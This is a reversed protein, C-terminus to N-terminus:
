FLKESDILITVPGDNHIDVSMDAVFEGTEVPLAFSSRLM